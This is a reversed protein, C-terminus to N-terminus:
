SEEPGSIIGDHIHKWCIVEVKWSKVVKRLKEAYKM